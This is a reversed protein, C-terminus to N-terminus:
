RLQAAREACLADGGQACREWLVARREPDFPSAFHYHSRFLDDARQAAAHSVVPPVPAGDFLPVLSRGLFSRPVALGALEVITPAIDMIRVPNSVRTGRRRGGPLRWVM